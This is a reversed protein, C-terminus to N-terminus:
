VTTTKHKFAVFNTSVSDPNSQRPLLIDRSQLVDLYHDGYFASVQFVLDNILSRSSCFINRDDIGYFLKEFNLRLVINLLRRGSLIRAM